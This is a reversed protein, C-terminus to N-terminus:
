FINLAFYKEKSLKIKLYDELRLNSKEFEKWNVICNVFLLLESCNLIGGLPQIQLYCSNFPYRIDPRYTM